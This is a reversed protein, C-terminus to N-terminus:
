WPCQRGGLEKCGTAWQGAEVMTGGVRALRAGAEEKTVVGSRRGRLELRPALGEPPSGTQETQCDLGPTNTRGQRKLGTRQLSRLDSVGGGAGQACWLHPSANSQM